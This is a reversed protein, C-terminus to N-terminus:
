SCSGQPAAAYKAILRINRPGTRDCHVFAEQEDIPIVTDLKTMSISALKLFRQWGIRAKVANMNTITRRLAKAGVQVLYQEGDAVYSQDAASDAYWGQIVRRLFEHRHQLPETLKLQADIRGYEDILAARNESAL